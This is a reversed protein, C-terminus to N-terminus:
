AFMENTTPLEQFIRNFLATDYLARPDANEQPPTGPRINVHCKQCHIFGPSPAKEMVFVGHSHGGEASSHKHSCVTQQFRNDRMQQLVGASNAKREENAAKIREVEQDIAKQEMVTPKKLEKIVSALMEANQRQMEKLMEKVVDISISKTEEPM